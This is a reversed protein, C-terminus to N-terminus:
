LVSAAYVRVRSSGFRGMVVFRRGPFRHADLDVCIRRKGAGLSFLQAFEPMKAVGPDSLRLVEPLAQSEKVIVHMGKGARHWTFFVNELVLTHALQVM